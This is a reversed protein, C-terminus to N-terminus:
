GREIIMDKGANYIYNGLAHATHSLFAVFYVGFIMFVIENLEFGGFVYLLGM